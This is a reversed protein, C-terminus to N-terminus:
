RLILIRLSPSTPATFKWSYKYGDKTAGKATVTKNDGYIAEFDAKTIIAPKEQKTASLGNQADQFAKIAANADALSTSKNESAETLLNVAATLKRWSLKSFAYQRQCIKM